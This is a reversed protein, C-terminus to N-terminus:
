EYRLAVIPDVSAARRAPIVSAILAVLTVGLLAVEFSLPDGPVVGFLMSRMLQAGAIALPVGAAVGVASILFSERLVMWLVESRQAGLAMRVGIESTRRSVRYALTGYLGTAVLLAAILGFFMALRAFLRAQSFSEDFQARQTMPKQMPLNPDLDHLVARVSPILSEPNGTAHLEVQMDSVSRKQSIPIFAMARPKEDVSTYKNDAAVGVITYMQEPKIGGIMHGLPDGKPLLRKVFTENVVVVKPATHSDSDLIDRGELIPIGLTRFYDPGVDNSRVGIQDFSGTPLVGDIAFVNNDSWGSGLRNEMLTASEVGPVVSLRELLNQYFRAKEEDSHTNLPSTGFVILGDTRLGLPLTEYNRLSRVLLGAGVLLILCLAMQVAVVVKGAWTTKKNRQAAANSTKVVAGAPLNVAGRLPAVGFVVACGFSIGLTFLLVNADLSFPVELDSWAALARSASIAFLWGLAAGSTVLLLSEALLQRLLRGSGAGLAVRMSFERQRASNRAVLLMAVNACAIVLVLGVMAMLIKIPQDYQERLGQIGKAPALALINKRRKPDPTGLGILAAHQFGPDLTALAHAPTVNPALRGILRLCWWSPSGYLTNGSAPTGWANLEPRNQLPIWFDTSAGPEVGYFSQATVGIITFPLGKVYITQGLVSSNRAFRGTWYAYSLVALPAHGTEDEITFGRGRAFATGLGSFFNGSVMDAEAEEPDEGIRVAVKGISLPVYAMLDSFAAREKRLQEFVPESFSTDGDGTNSAGSPQNNPLRLYMLQEPHPLPLNRLLVSNMVSFVATNGGIGLALTLIATATFGPNKWLMRLGYRFDQWMTELIPLGRRERYNEKTQEIGGLKMVAERRARAPSMGARLNDEIHLQLHSEMEAALERDRRGKGFLGGLRSFYSKPRKM